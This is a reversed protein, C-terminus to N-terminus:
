KMKKYVVIGLMKNQKGQEFGRSLRIRKQDHSMWILGKEITKDKKLFKVTYTKADLIIKSNFVEGIKFSLEKKESKLNKGQCKSSEFWNRRFVLHDSGIFEYIEIVNGSNENIQTQICDSKWYGELNKPNLNSFSNQSSIFLITVLVLKMRNEMHNNYIIVVIASSYFCWQFYFWFDNKEYYTLRESAFPQGWNIVNKSLKSVFKLLVWKM